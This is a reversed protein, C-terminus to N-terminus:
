FGFSKKQNNLQEETNKQRLSELEIKEDLSLEEITGRLGNWKLDETFLSGNRNKLCNITFFKDNEPYRVNFGPRSIGLMTTLSQAISSSGKAATFSKIDETPNTYMKSPQLLTIICVEEENAIQRLKQAVEASAATPDSVSPIVLENYDIVVLKVKNPSLKENTARITEVIEDPTQGSKFCFEVNKYEKSILEQIKQAEKPNNKFIDFVKEQTYGTHRQILRLYVPAHFMDYSFFISNVNNHSNHNLLEFTMSTKGAGPPGVIANSTGVMFRVRNDLASIGSSLINKDYNQTYEYFLQFVENSKITLQEYEHKCAHVGLSQCYEHLWSQKDRCSFQGGKWNPSYIQTVINNYIEEDPFRETDTHKSQLEAVGKLMRYTIDLPFGQNRYTAGLCLLANSRDGEYFYGNLLSWRCNSLWKAKTTFDLFSNKSQTLKHKEQIKPIVSEDLVADEYYVETVKDLSAAWERIRDSHFQNLSKVLIPIKFLNSEQHKTFPVRLIRSANYLSSDLTSLNKGIQNYCLEKLQAPTFRLNTQVLITFGKKGSFYVEIAKEQIGLQSQLRNVVEITELRADELNSISDFDFVLKNTTVDTIGAITNHESFHKFQMENYQFISVYYDKNHNTIHSPIESEVILTGRDNLGQCLRNYFAM